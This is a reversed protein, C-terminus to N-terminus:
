APPRLQKRTAFEIAYTAGPTGAGASGTLMAPVSPTVAVGAEAFGATLIIERHPPSEMWAAVMGTPTSFSAGTGWGLNQGVFLSITNSAYPSRAIRAEPTLWSPCNDSFSSWHVLCNVQRAAVAQLQRNFRVPRLHNQKRVQDILCLTAADVVFANAADPQLSVDPCPAASTKALATDRGFAGSLLLATAFMTGIIRPM